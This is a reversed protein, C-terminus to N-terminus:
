ARTSKKYFASGEEGSICRQPVHTISNRYLEGNIVFYSKSKHVIQKAEIEDDPLEQKQLYALIPLTWEPPVIEVDFVMDVVAPIDEKNPINKDPLMDPDAQLFPDEKFTPSHLHELYIGPPIQGRASGLKALDDAAQNQARPIHHLELGDFKKELKRVAVCYTTITPSRIDWEKMVQNIVLDSDGFIMLRRVGLSIAMRMDYLLADYEAENNKAPFHIQLVYRMEDKSPSVLVVGAGAGQLMKSGDFFMTWHEPTPQPPHQVEIWEALFDVLAQSKIAKKAQYNLDLPLLALSWKEIRGTSYRNNMIEALPAESVVTISHDQFYHALKQSAPYIGMALKQYHPYRQKSPTLVEFIFYVPRQIKQTKGEEEREVVIAVSVVQSTAAIYLLLPDKEKPAALVPRTSLQKKLEEFAVQAEKTWKFNSSKKMLQYLPLAKEGLRSIFRSLAALCGTLKQVDRLKQPPKMNQIAAIKEPNAEIGRESVMFGLLKGAPVRFVCKEPNLKISYSRLSQFTKALDALLSIGKASKIVIDDVYVEVNRGIQWILCNQMMRQYTAGANRLRFPMTIYCFCGFPTIFTTKLEDREYLRIQHYGSYADLFCLRECGSTSDVIQDIRPLPFHDKPCFKNIHRFDVCTRWSKDKKPVMVPNALWESHFIERIFGAALLRAIEQGIAKRKESSFRRLSEKVTRAKPDVHLKHEALERPVGPM